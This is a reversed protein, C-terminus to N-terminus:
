FSWYGSYSMLVKTKYRLLGPMTELLEYKCFDPIELLRLSSSMGSAVQMVGRFIFFLQLKIKTIKSPFSIIRTQKRDSKKM